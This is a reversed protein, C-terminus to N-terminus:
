QCSGLARMVSGWGRRAELFTRTFVTRAEAMLRTEVTPDYALMARRLRAGASYNEFAAEYYGHDELAKGLAYHLHLRDDADLDGRSLQIAMAAEDEASLSAIKLNGLSWYADGLGPALAICRRYATKADEGRGIARLSHGYNLWLRPQEPYDELLGEYLKAVRVDEGLLGLSGALLNRYAPDKPKRALLAELQEAAPGAKQQRFLAQAYSFRTADSGPDIELCRALLTEADKYREQRLRVEALMKMAASDSMHGLLHARLLDEAADLRGEFIATAAPKLAPDTVAARAYQAFAAEAGAADGMQFLGEGLARWADALERNLGAARRLAEVAARREGLDALTLGLEYQTM